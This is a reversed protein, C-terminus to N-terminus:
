SIGMARRMFFRQLPPIKNGAGLGANRL